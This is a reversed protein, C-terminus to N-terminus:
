LESYTSSFSAILLDLDCDFRNGMMAHCDARWRPTFRLRAADGSVGVVLVGVGVSDADDQVEM